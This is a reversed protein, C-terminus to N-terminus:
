RHPALGSSKRVPRTGTRRRTSAQTRSDNSRDDSFLKREKM